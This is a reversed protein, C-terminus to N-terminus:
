AGNKWGAMWSGVSFDEPVDDFFYRTERGQYGPLFQDTDAQLADDVPKFHQWLTQAEDPTFREGLPKGWQLTMPHIMSIGRRDFDSVEDLDCCRQCYIWKATKSFCITSKVLGKEGRGPHLADLAKRYGTGNKAIVARFAAEADDMYTLSRENWRRFTAQASPSLYPLWDLDDYQTLRAFRGHITRRMKTSYNSGQHLIPLIYAVGDGAALHAQAEGPVQGLPDAGIAANEAETNPRLHSGPVVKLVSDDYLCINWQVYRPGSELIDDVYARLPANLPPYFDRHWKAPGRDSTPSCMMMMETVPVDPEQLLESSLGQVREHLWIEITSATQEDHDKGMRGVIVRPQYSSEWVGGPPDDSGAERAWNVKQRELILESSRRLKELRDPPVAQRVIVYGNELFEDRNVKM